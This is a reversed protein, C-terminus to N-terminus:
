RAHWRGTRIQTSHREHLQLASGRGELILTAVDGRPSIFNYQLLHEPGDPGEVDSILSVLTSGDSLTEESAPQAPKGRFKLQADRFVERSMGIARAVLEVRKTPEYEKEVEYVGVSAWGAPGRFLAPKDGREFVYGNLAPLRFRGFSWEDARALSGALVLCLVFIVRFLRM